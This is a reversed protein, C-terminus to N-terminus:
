EATTALLFPAPNGCFLRVTESFTKGNLTTGDVSVVVLGPRVGAQEAPGGPTVM